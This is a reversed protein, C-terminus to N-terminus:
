PGLFPLLRMSQDFFRDSTMDIQQLTYALAEHDLPPPSFISDGPVLFIINVKERLTPFSARVTPVFTEMFFKTDFKREKSQTCTIQLVYLNDNVVIASGVSPFNSVSPIWYENPARFQYLGGFTTGTSWCVDQIPTPKQEDFWKHICYEFYLGRLTGNLVSSAWRYSEFLSSLSLKRRLEHLIYVSDMIQIESGCKVSRFMTCLMDFNITKESTRTWPSAGELVGEEQNSTLRSLLNDNYNKVIVYEKDSQCVRLINRISGGCMEYARKATQELHNSVAQVGDIAEDETWGSLVWRRFTATEKYIPLPHGGSSCFYDYSDHLTNRKDLPSPGDVFTYLSDPHSKGGRDYNFSYLLRHFSSLGDELNIKHLGRTFWVRVSENQDPVMLFISVYNENSTRRYYVTYSSQAQYLAALFFLVSKGVGSSGLLVNRFERPKGRKGTTDKCFWGFILKMCKRIYIKKPIFSDERGSMRLSNLFDLELISGDRLDSFDLLSTISVFCEKLKIKFDSLLVDNLEAM